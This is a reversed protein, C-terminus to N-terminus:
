RHENKAKLEMKSTTGGMQNEEILVFISIKKREVLLIIFAPTELTSSILFWSCVLRLTKQFM